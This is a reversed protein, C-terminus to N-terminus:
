IGPNRRLYGSYLITQSTQKFEKFEALCYDGGTFTFVAAVVAGAGNGYNYSSAFLYHTGLTQGPLYTLDINRNVAYGGPVVFSYVGVGTDNVVSIGAAHISTGTNIYKKGGFLIHQDGQLLVSMGGYIADRIVGTRGYAFTSRGADLYGTPYCSYIPRHLSGFLWKMGPDNRYGSVTTRIWRSQESDTIGFGSYDPNPVGLGTGGPPNCNHYDNGPTDVINCMVMITIDRYTWKYWEPRITGTGRFLKPYESKIFEHPREGPGFCNGSAGIGYKADHNGITLLKEIEQDWGLANIGYEFDNISSGTESPLEIREGVDNDGSFVCAVPKPNYQSIWAVAATIEDGNISADGLHLDSMYAISYSNGDWTKKFKGTQRVLSSPNPM